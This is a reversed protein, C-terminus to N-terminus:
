LATERDQDAFKGVLTCCVLALAGVCLWWEQWLGFGVASISLYVTATAAAIAAFLRQNDARAAVRHLMLAWFATGLLAGPVGLEFWLQLPGDHPHLPILQPYARSADLGWGRLPHALLLDSVTSWIRTREGWSPPLHAAIVAFVGGRHLALLIWPTLLMYAVTVGLLAYVAPRGAKLVWFFMPVSLVLGLSPAFGRLMILCAPVFAALAFAARHWGRRRLALGLPWALVAVVDGSQALNRIALDPRVPQHFAQSLGLYLAAHSFMEIVVVSAGGLVGCGLWVLARAANQGKMDDAAAVLAGSLLLQLGLHLDTEIPIDKTQLSAPPSWVASVGAWLVLAALLGFGVWQKPARIALPACLLGAVGVIPAYGRAGFFLAAGVAVALLAFLTPRYREVVIELTSSRQGALAPEVHESPM